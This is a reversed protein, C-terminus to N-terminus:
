HAAASGASGTAPLTASSGSAASGLPTAKGPVHMFKCDRLEDLTTAKIACDVTVRSSGGNCRRVEADVDTGLKETGMLARMNDIAQRCAEKSPKNCGATLALAAVAVLLPRVFRKMTMEM